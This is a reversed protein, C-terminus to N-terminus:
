SYHGNAPAICAVQHLDQWEITAVWIQEDPSFQVVGETQLECDRGDRDADDSYLTLSLGNRLHIQKGALDQM